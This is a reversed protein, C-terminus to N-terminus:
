RLETGITVSAIFDDPNIAYLERPRDVTGWRYVNGSCLQFLVIITM